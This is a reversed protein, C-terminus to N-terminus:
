TLYATGAFPVAFDIRVQNSAPYSVIGEVVTQASDVIVVAPRYALPHTIIWALSAVM